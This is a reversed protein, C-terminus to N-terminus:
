GCVFLLCSLALFDFPEIMTLLAYCQVQQLRNGCSALRPIRSSNELLVAVNHHGRLVGPWPCVPVQSLYAQFNRLSILHAHGGNMEPAQGKRCALKKGLVGTSLKKTYLSFPFLQNLQLRFYCTGSTPFKPAPASGCRGQLIRILLITSREPSAHQSPCEHQSRRKVIFSGGAIWESVVVSARTICGALKLFKFTLFGSLVACM